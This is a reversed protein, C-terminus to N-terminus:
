RLPQDSNGLGWQLYKTPGNPASSFVIFWEASAPRFVTTDAAGDGDFDHALPTDGNLGWQRNMTPNLTAPDIGLWQGTAPRFITLDARGDRDFDGTIPM